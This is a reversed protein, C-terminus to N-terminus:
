RLTVEVLNPPGFWAIDSCRKRGGSEVVNAIGCILDPVEWSHMDGNSPVPEYEQDGEAYTHTHISGLVIMKRAAAFEFAETWWHGPIAIQGETAHEQQDAPFFLDLVDLHDAARRGVVFAIFELPFARVARLKFRKQLRKSITVPITM